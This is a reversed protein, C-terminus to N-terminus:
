YFRRRLGPPLISRHLREFASLPKKGAGALFEDKTTLWGENPIFELGKGKLPAKFGKAIGTGRAGYGSPSGVGQDLAAPRNPLSRQDDRPARWGGGPRNWLSIGSTPWSSPRKQKDYPRRSAKWPNEVLVIGLHNPNERSLPRIRDTIQDYPVCIWRRKQLNPQMKILEQM